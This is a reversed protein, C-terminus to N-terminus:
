ALPTRVLPVEAIASLWSRPGVLTCRVAAVRSAFVIIADLPLGRASAFAYAGHFVDGAALTDVAAVAEAAIVGADDGRWWRVPNAGDTVVVTLAGMGALQAATDESSSSDPMRFDASAVVDSAAGIVDPMSPKWRGADVIVRIDASRAARAVGVSVAPHHGDVLVVDAGALVTRLADAAPAPAQMGLADAGVVARDGNSETVIVSSVPASGSFDPHVDIVEVGVERLEGTIARAVPSSGLATVLTADGGLAAFTVAANAAPGGAAIFQAAATIKQNGSPPAAVRHVVDLTALGAFVGRPRPESM